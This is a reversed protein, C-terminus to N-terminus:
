RLHIRICAPNPGLQLAVFGPKAIPTESCVAGRQAGTLHSAALMALAFAGLALWILPKKRIHEM